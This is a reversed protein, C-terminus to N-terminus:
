SCRCHAATCPSVAYVACEGHGNRASIACVPCIILVHLTCQLHVTCRHTTHCHVICIFLASTLVILDYVLFETYKMRLQPTLEICQAGSKCVFHHSNCQWRVVVVRVQALVMQEHLATPHLYILAVPLIQACCLVAAVVFNSSPM